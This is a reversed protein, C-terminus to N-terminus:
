DKSVLLTIGLGICGLGIIAIQQLITIIAPDIMTIEM